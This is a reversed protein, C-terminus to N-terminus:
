EIYKYVNYKQKFGAPRTRLIKMKKHQKDDDFFGFLNQNVSEEKGRGRRGGGESGAFKESRRARPLPTGYFLNDLLGVLNFSGQTAQRVEKRVAEQQPNVIKNSRLLKDVNNSVKVGARELRKSGGPRSDIFRELDDGLQDKIAIHRHKILSSSRTHKMIQKEHQERQKVEKEERMERRKMEEDRRAEEEGDEERLSGGHGRSKKALGRGNDQLKDSHSPAAALQKKDVPAQSADEVNRTASLAHKVQQEARVVRSVHQRAGETEGAGTKEQAHNPQAHTNVSNAIEREEEQFEKREQQSMIRSSHESGKARDERELKDWYRMDRRHNRDAAQKVHAKVAALWREKRAHEEEVAEHAADKSGALRDFFSDESKREDEDGERRGAHLSVKRGEEEGVEKV